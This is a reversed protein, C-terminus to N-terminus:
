KKLSRVRAEAEARAIKFSDNSTPMGSDSLPSVGLEVRRAKVKAIYEANMPNKGAARDSSDAFSDYMHDYEEPFMEIHLTTALSGIESELAEQLDLKEVDYNTLGERAEVRQLAEEKKFRNM